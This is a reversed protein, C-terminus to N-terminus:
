SHGESPASIRQLDVGNEPRSLQASDLCVVFMKAVYLSCPCSSMGESDSMDSDSPISWGQERDVSADSASCFSQDDQDVSGTYTM